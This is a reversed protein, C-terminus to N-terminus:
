LAEAPNDDIQGGDDLKYDGDEEDGQEALCTQEEQLAAAEEDQGVINGNEDNDEEMTFTDDWLPDRADNGDDERPQLFNFRLKEMFELFDPPISEKATKEKGYKRKRFKIKKRQIFRRMWGFSAKFEILEWRDPHALKEANFIKM